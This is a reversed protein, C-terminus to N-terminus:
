KQNKFLTTDEPRSKLGLTESEGYCKGESSIFGASVPARYIRNWPRHTHNKIGELMEMMADHHVKSPFVFIEEVGEECKTVIYKM